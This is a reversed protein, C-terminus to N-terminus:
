LLFAHPDHLTDLKSHNLIGPDHRRAHLCPGLTAPECHPDSPPDPLACPAGPPPPHGGSSEDTEDDESGSLFDSDEESDGDDSDLPGRQLRGNYLPGSDDDSDDEFSSDLPLFQHTTYGTLYVDSPGSHSISLQRNVQLGGPLAHDQCAGRSVVVAHM